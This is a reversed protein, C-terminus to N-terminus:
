LFLRLEEDSLERYQGPLLSDDLKLSGISLRKLYLVQNDVAKLMRKVQHFRGEHITLLCTCAEGIEVTCPETPKDDGIDVGKMLTDAAEKTLEKELKCFYTKNVHFGPAMLRHNLSGDNTILLLGETDKDLRGVASLNKGKAGKMYDFVTRDNADYNATVCGAPKHFMYYYEQQYSVPRGNVAIEDKSSDVQLDPKTAKGQNVLVVGKKILQKIESRTMSLSDALYKDLRM